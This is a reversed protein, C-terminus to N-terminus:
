RTTPQMTAPMTRRTAAPRLASVNMLLGGMMMSCTLSSGGYSIFPLNIGICPLMNMAVAMNVIAQTALMVTCGAAVLAGFEDPARHAVAFGRLILFLYPVFLFLITLFFGLEEAIVAMISDNQTAPLYLWKQLSKCFGRGFVGGSGIAILANFPQMGESLAYKEPNRWAAIRNSRTSHDLSMVLALLIFLGLLPIGVYRLKVGAILLIVSLALIVGFATGLDRQLVVLLVPGLLFWIPGALLGRVSKLMWPRRTIYAALTVVAVVKLLESPQLPGLWNHNGHRAPLCLPALMLVTTVVIVGWFVWKQAPHRYFWELPIFMCLLMAPLGILLASMIQKRAFFFSDGGVLAKPYSASYVFAIGMGVLALLCLFLPMDFAVARRM